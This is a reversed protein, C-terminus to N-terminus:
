SATYVISSHKNHIIFRANPFQHVSANKQKFIYGFCGNKLQYFRAQYLIIM